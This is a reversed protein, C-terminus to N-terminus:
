VVQPPRDLGTTLLRLHMLLPVPDYRRRRALPLLIVGAALAAACLALAFPGEPGTCLPCSDSHSMGMAVVPLGALLLILVLLAVLVRSM